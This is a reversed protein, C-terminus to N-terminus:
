YIKNNLAIINNSIKEVNNWGPPIVKWKFEKQINNIKIQLSYDIRDIASQDDKENSDLELLSNVSAFIEKAEELETIGQQEIINPIVKQGLYQLIEIPNSIKAMDNQKYWIKREWRYEQACNYLLFTFTDGIAHDVILKVSDCNNDDHKSKESLSQFANEFLDGLLEDFPM